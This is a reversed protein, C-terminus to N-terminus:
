TLNYSEGCGWDGGVLQAPELGLPCPASQPLAPPPVCAAPCHVGRTPPCRQRSKLCGASHLAMGRLRSLEQLQAMRCPLPRALPSAMTLQVFKGLHMILVQDAPVITNVSLWSWYHGLDLGRWLDHRGKELLVQVTHVVTM